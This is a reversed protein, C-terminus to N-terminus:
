HAPRELQTLLAKVDARDPHQSAVHRALVTAERTRGLRRFADAMGLSIEPQPMYPAALEMLTLAERVRASDTAAQLQYYGLLGIMDVELESRQSALQQRVVLPDRSLAEAAFNVSREDRWPTRAVLPRGMASVIAEVTGATAYPNQGTVLRDDRVVKPMMLGMEEWKAGLTRLHSELLWPYDSRWEKGFVVEEEDTFGTLRRGAVLPKGNKLRVNVLGAPGHCVAGVVGGREHIQAVIRALATDAPLDFMAGKGGVIFVAAFQEANLGATRTTQRLQRMAATDALLRANYEHKKNFADPLPAGGEPSAVTVRLGNATFIHWAQSFEDMEFGPRTRGSDRGAGSVVVLVHQEVPHEESTTRPENSFVFAGVLTLLGLLPPSVPM